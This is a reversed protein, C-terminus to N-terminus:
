RLPTVCQAREEDAVRDPRKLANRASSRAGNRSRSLFMIYCREGWPPRVHPLGHELMSICRVRFFFSFCSARQLVTFVRATAHMTWHGPAGCASIGAGLDLLHGQVGM